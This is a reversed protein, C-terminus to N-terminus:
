RRLKGKMYHPYRYPRVKIPGCGHKLPIHHNHSRSPPLGVLELFLEEYENPGRHSTPLLQCLFGSKKRRLERTAVGEEGVKHRPGMIGKLEVKRGNNKFSMALKTFDWLIADCGEIALLFFEISFQNGQVWVEVNNCRGEYDLKEGNAVMVKTWLLVRVRMIQPPMSGLMAHLSIRPEEIFNYQEEVEVGDDGDDDQVYIGEILFLKKCRHGRTFPEVSNFCLGKKRREQLENPNLRRIIPTNTRSLNASPMPWPTPELKTQRKNDLQLPRKMSRAEFLRALGIGDTITTPRVAQVDTCVPEKLGNIFCRLQHNPALKGVHSLLQEFQLQYERVSGMQQLKSLSEFHEEFMTPGYRIRLGEKLAEWSVIGESDKFLQYWMQVEWDLHYAALHLKEVEETQQYDFFQEERYIWSTPDELGNYKPFDLKAFKPAAVNVSWWQEKASTEEFRKMLREMNSGFNAM